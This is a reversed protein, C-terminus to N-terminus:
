APDAIAFVATEPFFQAWAFWFDNGHRVTKLRKGALEGDVAEGLINWTSGTEVDVIRGDRAEFTLKRGDAFPEYVAASGVDRQPMFAEEPTLKLKEQLQEIARSGLGTGSSRPTLNTEPFPTLTGGVYFIVLDRGAFTDNIVPRRVLLSFPYAIAQGDIEVSVVREVAELRPDIDGRFLFPRTGERDYGGYSPRDYNRAFGTDRSLLRGNPFSERFQGWSVMQVSIFELQKGTLEGVIADGTLQQWWSETQRDWMVLNSFRLNGTTGFDLLRGDLLRSFAIGSNCLPCYTVVVPTGGVEDNVIEHAMLIALPYARADGNIEVSIVAEQDRMYGPAESVDIFTPNDLPRIGDKGPGGSRIEQYPVSHKSFDTTWQSTIYDPLRYGDDLLLTSTEPTATPASQRTPVAPTEDTVGTGTGGGCAVAVIAAVGAAIPLLRRNSRGWSQVTKRSWGGM